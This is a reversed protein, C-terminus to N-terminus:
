RSIGRSFTREEGRETYPSPPGRVKEGGYGYDKVIAMRFMERGEGGADSATILGELAAALERTCPWEWLIETIEGITRPPIAIRMAQTDVNFRVSGTVRALGGVKEGITSTLRPQAPLRAHALPKIGSLTHRM